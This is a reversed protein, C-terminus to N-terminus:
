FIPMPISDSFSGAKGPKRPLTLTDLWSTSCSAVEWAGDGIGVRVPFPLWERGSMSFGLTRIAMTIIVLIEYGPEHRALAELIDRIRVVERPSPGCPILVSYSM